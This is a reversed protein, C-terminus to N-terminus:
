QNDDKKEKDEVAYKAALAAILAAVALGFGSFDVSGTRLFNFVLASLALTGYLKTLSWSVGDRATFWHKILNKM